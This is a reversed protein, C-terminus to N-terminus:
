DDRTRWYTGLQPKSRATRAVMDFETGDPYEQLDQADVSTVPSIRGKDLRVIPPPPKNANM